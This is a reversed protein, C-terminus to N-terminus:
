VLKKKCVCDPTGTCTIGYSDHLHRQQQASTWGEAEARGEVYNITLEQDVTLDRLAVVAAAGDPDFLLGVSPTCAHNLMSATSFLSLRDGPGRVANLYLVGWYRLYEATDMDMLEFERTSANVIRKVESIGEVIRQKEEPTQSQALLQQPFALHALIIATNTEGGKLEELTKRLVIDAILADYTRGSSMAATALPPMPTILVTGKVCPEACYLGRGTIISERLHVQRPLHQTILKHFRSALSM